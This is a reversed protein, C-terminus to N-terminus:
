TLQLIYAALFAADLVLRVCMDDRFKSQRKMRLYLNPSLSGAMPVTQGAISLM